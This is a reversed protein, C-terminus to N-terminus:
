KINQTMAKITKATDSAILTRKIAIQNATPAMAANIAAKISIDNQICSTTSKM